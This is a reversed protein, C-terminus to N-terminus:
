DDKNGGTTGPRSRESQELAAVSDRLRQKGREKDWDRREPLHMDVLAMLVAREPTLAKCSESIAPDDEWRKCNACYDFSHNPHRETEMRHSAHPSYLPM